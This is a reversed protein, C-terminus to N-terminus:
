EGEDVEEDTGGGSGRWGEKTADGAAAGERM